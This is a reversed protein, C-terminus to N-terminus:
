ARPCRRRSNPSSPACAQAGGAARQRRAPRAGPGRGGRRTGDQTVVGYRTLSGIRVQAVDGVRVPVGDRRAVVIARLDDLTRVSGEVRVLLAEEGDRLRGAGDNRNNAELAHQLEALTVGRARLAAIDPVVEFAACTAAWRTSM